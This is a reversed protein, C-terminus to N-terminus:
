WPRAAARPSAAVYCGVPCSRLSPRPLAGGALGKAAAAGLKSFAAWDDKSLFDEM